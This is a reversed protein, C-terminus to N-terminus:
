LDMAAVTDALALDMREIVDAIDQESNVATPEFRITQANVLTGATM